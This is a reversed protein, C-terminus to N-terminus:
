TVLCVEVGNRNNFSSFDQFTHCRFSRNSSFVPVKCVEGGDVIGMDGSRGGDVIPWSM